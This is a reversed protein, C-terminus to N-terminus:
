QRVPYVVRPNQVGSRGMASAAFQRVITPELKAHCPACSTSDLVGHPLNAIIRPPPPPASQLYSRIAAAEADSVLEVPFRPMLQRPQRLQHVFADLSLQTAALAPGVGGRGSAGHCGLCGKTIFLEAGESAGQQAVLATPLVVLLMALHLSRKM